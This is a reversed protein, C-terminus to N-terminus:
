ANWAPADGTEDLGKEDGGGERGETEAYEGRGKTWEEMVLRRRESGRRDLVTRAEIQGGL